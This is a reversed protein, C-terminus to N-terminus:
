ELVWGEKNFKPIVYCALFGNSNDLNTRSYENHSKKHSEYVKLFSNKLREETVGRLEAYRNKDREPNDYFDPKGMKDNWYARIISEELLVLQTVGMILMFDNPDDPCNSFIEKMSHYDRDVNQNIVLRNTDIATEETNNLLMEDPIFLDKTQEIIRGYNTIYRIILFGNKIYDRKFWEIDKKSLTNGAMSCCVAQHKVCKKNKENYLHFSISGSYYEWAKRQAKTMDELKTGENRYHCGSYDIENYMKHHEDKITEWEAKPLDIWKGDLWCSNSNNFGRQYIQHRGNKTVRFYEKIKTM